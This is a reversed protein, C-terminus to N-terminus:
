KNTQLEKIDITGNPSVVYYKHTTEKTQVPKSEEKPKPTYSLAIDMGVQIVPELIASNIVIDYKEYTIPQYYYSTQKKANTLGKKNKIADFSISNYAQYNKYFDKPFFCYKNDAVAINYTSLDIGLQAYYQKKEEVLKLLEDQLKKYITHIDDIFYDVKVLNYIENESCAALITEFQETKTFQIHINVQLEFGKPVENYKKSFLKKEVEIEYNPIFSIVDVVIQDESINNQILKQKVNTIRENLLRNAEEATEGIQSINFIATYSSAKVNQLAKLDIRISNSPNLVTNLEQYIFPNNFPANGKNIINQRSITEELQNYNGKYQAQISITFLIVLSLLFSKNQM